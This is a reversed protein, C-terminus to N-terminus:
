IMTYKKDYSNELHDKYNQSKRILDIKLRTTFKINTIFTYISISICESHKSLINSSTVGNKHNCFSYKDWKLRIAYREKFSVSKRKRIFYRSLDRSGDM